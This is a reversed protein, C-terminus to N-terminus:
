KPYRVPFTTAYDAWNLVIHGWEAERATAPAEEAGDELSYIAYRGKVDKEEETFNEWDWQYILREKDLFGVCLNGGYFVEEPVAYTVAEGTENDVRDVWINGNKRYFFAFFCQEESEVWQFDGYYEEIEKQYLTKGEKSRLVVGTYDGWDAEETGTLFAYGNGDPAYEAKVPGQFVFDRVGCACDGDLDTIEHHAYYATELLKREGNELDYEYLGQDTCVLLKRADRTVDCIRQTDPSFDYLDGLLRHLDCLLVAEQFAKDLFFLRGDVEYVYGNEVQKPRRMRYELMEPQGATPREEWVRSEQRFVEKLQYLPEKAIYFIKQQLMQEEFYCDCSLLFTDTDALICEYYWRYSLEGRRGNLKVAPRTFCINEPVRIREKREAKEQQRPVDASCPVAWEKKVSKETESEKRGDRGAIAGGGLSLFLAGAIALFIMKKKISM